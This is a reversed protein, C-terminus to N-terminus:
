LRHLVVVWEYTPPITGIKNTLVPPALIKWGDMLELQIFDFIEVISPSIGTVILSSSTADIVVNRGTTTLVSM